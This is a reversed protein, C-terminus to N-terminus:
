KVRCLIVLRAPDEPHDATFCTCLVVYRPAEAGESGEAALADKEALVEEASGCIINEAIHEIAAATDFGSGNILGNLGFVASSYGSVSSACLIYLKQSGSGTYLVASRHESFFKEDEFLTLDSFMVQSHGVNHGYIVLYEDQLSRSNRFDATISGTVSEQGRFDHYLYKYFRRSIEEDSGSYVSEANSSSSGYEAAYRDQFAQDHLVPYDIGTGDIRLWGVIDPNIAAASAFDLGSSDTEPSQAAIEENANATSRALVVATQVLKFAAFLVIVALVIEYVSRWTIRKSL